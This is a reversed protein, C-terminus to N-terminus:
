LWTVKFNSPHDEFVIPFRKKAVELKTCWKTGVPSNLGSNSDPFAWDPDFKVSKLATHGQFKVSSRWFFLLVGRRLMMLSYADNWWWIHIWVLTVTRFHNLQTSVETVKVKLRQGQGRAHVNSKDNTILGSFTMIIHHHSCRSFHTVFLRVFLRVSLCVSPSFRVYLQKTAALFLAGPHLKKYVFCMTKSIGVM